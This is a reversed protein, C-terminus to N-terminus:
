FHIRLGGWMQWHTDLHTRHDVYWRGEGLFFVPHTPHHGIPIGFRLDASPTWLDSRTFDWISFGTGAFWRGFYKNVELEAFWPWQNTTDHKFLFMAGLGVAGGLEWNSEFRKALGAKLGIFGSGQTYDTSKGESLDAPRNRREGGALVDIFFPSSPHDRDKTAATAQSTSSQAGAPNGPPQVPPNAANAADRAAQERATQDRAAQDRAAQDRAAQERAAQERAAQDRAAQDRAAQERTAQERAARDRAAQEAAAAAAPSTVVSVLAVNACPKPVVFTYLKDNVTVRVLFAAFPRRGAWRVRERRAPARKGRVVPRYAMWEYTSGVPEQCDVIGDGPAASSCNGALRTSTGRSIAAIFADAAEPIGADRMVTRIDDAIAAKEAMRKLSGADTLPPKYFATPGGLRRANEYQQAFVPSACTLLLTAVFVRRLM